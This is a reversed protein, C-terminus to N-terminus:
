SHRNYLSFRPSQRFPLLLDPVKNDCMIEFETAAKLVYGEPVEFPEEFLGPGPLAMLCRQRMSYERVVIETQENFLGVNDGLM